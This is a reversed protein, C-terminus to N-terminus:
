VDEIIAVVCKLYRTEPMSLLVPHDKAAGTVSVVRLRKEITAAAKLLEALFLEETVHQSCSCTVLIGFEGFKSM